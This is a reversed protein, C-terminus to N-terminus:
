DTTVGPDLPKTIVVLDDDGDDQFGSLQFLERVPIAANQHLLAYRGSTLILYVAGDGALCQRIRSLVEAYAEVPEQRRSRRIGAMEVEDILRQIRYGSYFEISAHLQGDVWLIRDGPQVGHERLAAALARGERNFLGARGLAPWVLVVLVGVGLNLLVFAALRRGRVYSFCSLTWVVVAAAAAWGFTTLAGPVRGFAVSGGGILAAALVLPIVLCITRVTRPRASIACFFLRDIVPALLLAYAPMISLLYHPRKFSSASLFVTAVIAWTFVYALGARHKRYRQLFPAAMAEPISLMFPASLGFIIPVYYWIPRTREAMEGTFRDLYEIRWLSLAGDVQTLVYVPWAVTVALFVLLGPGLWLSRLRKFQERCAAGARVFFPQEGGAAADVAELLPMTVFWHVALFLGVTALPLPAKAMMALAAAVYFAALWRKSGRSDIAGRWFLAVALVTFFTLLMDVQANRAYFITAACAATIFGATLGIRLGFLMRGLWYVVLVTGIGALASPLRASYETVPPATGPPDTVKAAAGILWVGLPTKRILPAGALRPILWDGSQLSERASLANISEHDGLPPGEHLGVFCTLVSFAVLAILGLHRRETSDAASPLLGESEATPTVTPERRPM